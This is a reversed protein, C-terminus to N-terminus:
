PEEGELRQAAAQMLAPTCGLYWYTDALLSHGMWTSLVPLIKRPDQGNTYADLMTNVAFTHRLDTLRPRCKRSHQSLSTHTLIERFSEDVRTARLRNGRSSALLAPCSAAPALGTRFDTYAKLATMTTPHQPLLRIKGYKGTIRLTGAVPNLDGIDLACAEGTRIGTAAMLGILVAMTKARFSPHLRLSADLLESIEELTYIYPVNRSKRAKLLGGPPVEITHDITQAWRCFGRVASLRLAISRDSIGEKDTAFGVALQVTLATDQSAQVYDCFKALIRGVDVATSGQARRIQLYQEVMEPLKNM